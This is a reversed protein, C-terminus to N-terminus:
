CEYYRKIPPPVAPYDFLFNLTRRSHLFWAMGEGATPTHLRLMGGFTLLLALALVKISNMSIVLTRSLIGYPYNTKM